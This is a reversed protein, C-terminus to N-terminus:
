EIECTMTYVAGNAAGFNIENDKLQSCYLQIFDKEKKQIQTILYEADELRNLRVYAEFAPIWESRNSPKLDLAAAEDAWRATEEWDGRQWALSTKQYYYCWGHEPEPGFIEAPPSITAETETIIQDLHSKDFVLKVFPDENYDGLRTGDIVHLCSRSDPITVILTNKYNRAMRIVGRVLREDAIEFQYWSVTQRDLIEGPIKIDTSDPRYIINAPGWIEYNESFSYGSPLVATLLTDDKLDPARWTLQWWLEKQYRWADQYRLGNVYHTQIGLAILVAVIGILGNRRVYAILVGMVLLSVAVSAHLTYKNFGNFSLDLFVQRGVVVLPFLAAISGLIGIWIFNRSLHDEEQEQTSIKRILISYGYYIFIGILALIVSTAWPRYEVWSSLLYEPVFWSAFGTEFFDRAPEVILRAMSHLTTAGFSQSIYDVNMSDRGSEFFFLRWAVMGVLALLMPAAFFIWQKMRQKLPKLDEANKLAIWLFAWRLFELGFMYEYYFIYIVGFLLALVQYLIVKWLGKVQVAKITFAISILACLLTFLPNVKIGAQPMQLFGPYVAFLLAASTTALFSKQWLLRLIWWFVLVGAIKLILAFIQWGLPNSGLVQFYFAYFYGMLPRDFQHFDVILGPGNTRGAWLVYWDDMYFGFSKLLLGYTIITILVITIIALYTELNSKKPTTISNEM